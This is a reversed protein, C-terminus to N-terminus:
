TEWFDYFNFWNYPSLRAYYALRDAFKQAWVQVDALRHQRDINVCESFLEFHIHYRRGGEYLGFFLIVPLKLCSAALMPGTPFAATAGLLECAVTKSPEAVRDGLMGIIYGQRAFEHAKLLSDADGLPIVTGAIDPNIAHLIATITKNHSVQMLSRSM